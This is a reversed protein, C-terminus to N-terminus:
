RSKHGIKVDKGDDEFIGNEWEDHIGIKAEYKEQSWEQILFPFLEETLRTKM